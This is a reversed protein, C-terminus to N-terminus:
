LKNYLSSQRLFHTLQLISEKDKLNNNFSSSIDVTYRKWQVIIREVTLIKIKNELKKEKRKEQNM